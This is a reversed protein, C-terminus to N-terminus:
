HCSANTISLNDMRVGPASVAEDSGMRFRFTVTQGALNPGLNIVTDIYGGSNGSWAMRGALPNNATGDITGTYCGTLCTAGVHSDTFDLFDGGSINPASVELVYGDWYIGGSFETNYNNRWSMMASASMITVGLRDLVKDSIGDQDPIFADNPASEPIVTSTVWMVGDGPDPNSAVWGTPLAPATVGDWNEV